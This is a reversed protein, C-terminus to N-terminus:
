LTSKLSFTFFEAQFDSFLWPIINRFKEIIANKNNKNFKSRTQVNSDPLCNIWHLLKKEERKKASLSYKQYLHQRNREILKSMSFLSKNFFVVVRRCQGFLFKIHFSSINRSYPRVISVIDLKEQPQDCCLACLIKEHINWLISASVAMLVPLKKEALNKHEYAINFQLMSDICIWKNFYWIVIRIIYGVRRACKERCTCSM